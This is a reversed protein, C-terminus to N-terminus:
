WTSVRCGNRIVTNPLTRKWIVQQLSPCFGSGDDSITYASRWADSKVETNVIRVGFNGNVTRGGLESEFNAMLYGAWTTETVDTTGPDERFQEPYAFDVGHYDLIM